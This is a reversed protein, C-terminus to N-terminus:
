EEVLTTGYPAVPALLVGDRAVPVARLPNGAGDHALITPRTFGTTPVLEARPRTNHLLLVRRGAGTLEKALVAPHFLVCDVRLTGLIAELDLTHEGATLGECLAVQEMWLHPTDPSGGQWHHTARRGDLSLALLSAPERQKEYALHLVYDGAQPANLLLRARDGPQMQLYRKGSWETGPEPPTEGVVPDGGLVTAEEAEVVQELGFGSARLDLYAQALPVDSLDALALLACVTSEAGAHTNVGTADVGDLCRGSHPDYVEAGAPNNGFFWAATIGALRAYIEKGTARYLALYGGTLVEASYAIQEFIRPAPLLGFAPGWSAALRTYLANAAREASAVWGPEHLLGGARALAMVQRNGWAHWQNPLRAFGLHGHFPFDEPTGKQLDVLGPCYGRMIREACADGTTEFLECLGLVATAAADAAHDPYWGPLVAGHVREYNGGHQELHELLRDLTHGLRERVRAALAADHTQFVAVATGLAWVARAAWWGLTKHSTPGTTNISGDPYVFNYFEGDPHQLHLIFEIGARAKELYAPDPDGRFQRLYFVVIRAVDDVCSCGEGDALIPQYDPDRSYIHWIALQEAPQKQAM